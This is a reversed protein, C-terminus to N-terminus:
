EGLRGAIWSPPAEGGFERGVVGAAYIEFDEFYFGGSGKEGRGERGKGERRDGKIGDLVWSVM